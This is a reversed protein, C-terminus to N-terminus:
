MLIMTSKSVAAAPLSQMTIDLTLEMQGTIDRQRIIARQTFCELSTMGDKNTTTTTNAVRSWPIAWLLEPPSALPVWQQQALICEGAAIVTPLGDQHRGAVFTVAVGILTTSKMM